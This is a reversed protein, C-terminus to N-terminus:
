PRRVWVTARLEQLTLTRSVPRWPTAGFVGVYLDPEADLFGPHRITL